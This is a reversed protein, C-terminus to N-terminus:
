RWIFRQSCKQVHFLLLLYANQLLEEFKGVSMRTMQTSMQAKVAISTCLQNFFCFEAPNKSHDVTVCSDNLLMSRKTMWTVRMMLIKM